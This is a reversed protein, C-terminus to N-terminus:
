VSRRSRRGFAASVGGFVLGTAPAPIDEIVIRTRGPGGGANDLVFVDFAGLFISSVADFHSLVSASPDDAAGEFLVGGPELGTVALQLFFM